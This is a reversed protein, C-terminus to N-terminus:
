QVSVEETNRSYEKERTKMEVQIVGIRVFVPYLYSAGFTGLKKPGSVIRGLEMAKEFAILVTAKTISKEKRSVFMENGRISYTFDLGKATYFTEDQFLGLVEWLLEEPKGGPQEMASQFRFLTEPSGSNKDDAM